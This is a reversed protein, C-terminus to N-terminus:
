DFDFLDELFSRRRRRRDDDRSGRYSRDDDYRERGREDSSSARPEAYSSQASRELLKDLEGRDLWIGRCKPCYDIEIGQRESIRLETNDIPCNLVSEGRDIFPSAGRRPMAARATTLVPYRGAPNALEQRLM